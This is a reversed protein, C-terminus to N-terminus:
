SAKVFWTHSGDSETSEEADVEVVRAAQRLVGVRCTAPYTTTDHPRGHVFTVTGAEENHRIQAVIRLRQGPRLPKILDGLRVDSALPRPLVERLSM